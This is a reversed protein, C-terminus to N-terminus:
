TMSTLWSAELPIVQPHDNSQYSSGQFLGSMDAYQNSDLKEAVPRNDADQYTLEPSGMGALPFDNVSTCGVIRISEATM